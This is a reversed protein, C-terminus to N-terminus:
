SLISLGVLCHGKFRGTDHKTIHIIKTNLAKISGAPRNLYYKMNLIDGVNIQDLVTSDEKVLICLGQASVNWIKFQYIPGPIKAHVEVGHYEEVVTRLESRREVKGTKESEDAM